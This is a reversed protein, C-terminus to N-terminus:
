CGAGSFRVWPIGAEVVRGAITAGGAGHGYLRCNWVDNDGCDTKVNMTHKSKLLCEDMEDLIGSGCLGTLKKM